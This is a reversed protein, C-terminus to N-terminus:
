MPAQLSLCQMNERTRRITFVPAFLLPSFSDQQNGLFPADEMGVNSQTVHSKLEILFNKEARVKPCTEEM